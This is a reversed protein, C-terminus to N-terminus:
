EQPFNIYVPSSMMENTGHADCVELRLWHRAASATLTTTATLPLPSGPEEGDWLLHVMSGHDAVARIHVSLLAGATAHLTAGMKASVGNAEADFDVM